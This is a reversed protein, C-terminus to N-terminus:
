LCGIEYGLLEWFMCQNYLDIFLDCIVYYELEKIYKYIVKVLGVFNFLVILISSIVIYCILDQVLVLYVGIGVIGGIKLLDFILLKIQLEIDCCLFEFLNSGLDVIYYKIYLVIIGFFNLMLEFQVWVIQEFLVIIDVLLKQCWFVEWEFGQDDICFIILLVYVDVILNIEFLLENIFQCWDCVVNLMIILKELLKVEFEFIGKDVVVNKMCEVFQGVDSLIQNFDDFGFYVESVDFQNFDKISNVVEVKGCFQDMVFCVCCMVLVFVVVVVFLVCVGFIVFLSIFYIWVMFVILQLIYDIVVVGFM